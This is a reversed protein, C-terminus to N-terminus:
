ILEFKNITNKFDKFYEDFWKIQYLNHINKIDYTNDTTFRKKFKINIKKIQIIIEFEIKNSIEIDEKSECTVKTSLIVDNGIDQKFVILNKSSLNECKKFGNIPASIINTHIIDNGM